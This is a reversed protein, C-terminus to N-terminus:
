SVVECGLRQATPVHVYDGPDTAYQGQYADTLSLVAEDPLATAQMEGVNGIAIIKAYRAGSCPQVIAGIGNNV